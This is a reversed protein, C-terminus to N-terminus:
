KVAESPNLIVMVTMDSRTDLKSLVPSEYDRFEALM